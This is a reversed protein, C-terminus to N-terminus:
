SKREEEAARVAVYPKPPHAAAGSKITDSYTIQSTRCYTTTQSTTKTPICVSASATRQLNSTAFQQSSITSQQNSVASQQSSVASQQGIIASQQSIIASQQSSVASKQSSVASKLSLADLARATKSPHRLHLHSDIISTSNHDKNGDATTARQERVRNYATDCTQIPPFRYREAM